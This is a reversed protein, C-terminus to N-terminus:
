GLYRDSELFAKINPRAELADVLLVLRPYEKLGKRGDKTLGEDHCVQYIVKDAYSFTKGIVFPGTQSHENTKLQKEIGKLFNLRPGKSHTDYEEKTGNFAQVFLTRGPSILLCCRCLSIKRGVILQSIVCPTQGTSRM